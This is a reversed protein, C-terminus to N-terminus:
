EFKLITLQSKGSIEKTLFYVRFSEGKSSTYTGIAFRSKEGGSQGENIVSFSQVPYKVFFNKMLLEAHSKSYSGQAEPISLEISSFFYDSLNQSNGSAISNQILKEVSLQNQLSDKIGPQDDIVTTEPPIDTSIAANAQTFLFYFSVLMISFFLKKM